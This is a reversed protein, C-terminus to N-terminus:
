QKRYWGYRKAEAATKRHHTSKPLLEMNAPTDSGGAALPVTHDVEMGPPVRKLSRQRLFKQKESESRHKPIGSRYYPGAWPSRGVHEAAAV